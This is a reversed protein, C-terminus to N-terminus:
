KRDKMLGIAVDKVFGGRVIDEPDCFDIIGVRDINHRKVFSLLWELGSEGKIDKQRVDGAVVLKCNDSIRTVISEMECPVTQQGEEIILFSPEDFSRGRISEIDQVEIQGTIGDKLANYYAGDGIRKRVTDLCNRVYPYLKEYTSGPRFGATRGTQVYPRAVIIKEIEGKRFADGASVAACYSKGAGHWGLCIVVQIDPDNLMRFYQRQKVTLAQVPPPNREDVFKEKIRKPKDEKRKQQRQRNYGAM